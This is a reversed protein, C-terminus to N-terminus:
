ETPPPLISIPLQGLPTGEVTVWHKAWPSPPNPACDISIAERLRATGKPDHGIDALKGLRDQFRRAVGVGFVITAFLLDRDEIACLADFNEWVGALKLCLQVSEDHFDIVGPQDLGLSELQNRRAENVSIDDRTAMTVVALDLLHLASLPYDFPPMQAVPFDRKPLDALSLGLPATPIEVVLRRVIEPDPQSTSVEARKPVTTNALKELLAAREPDVEGPKKWLDSMFYGTKTLVLEPHEKLLPLLERLTAPEKSTSM